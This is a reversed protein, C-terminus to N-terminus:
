LLFKKRYKKLCPEWKANTLPLSRYGASTLSRAIVLALLCYDASILWLWCLHAIVLALYAPLLHKLALFNNNVQFISEDSSSSNNRRPKIKSSSLFLFSFLSVDIKPEHSIEGAHFFLLAKLDEKHAKVQHYLIHNQSYSIKKKCTNKVLHKM